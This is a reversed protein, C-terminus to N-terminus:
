KTWDKWFRSFVWTRMVDCERVQKNLDRDGEGIKGSDPSFVWTRTMTLSERMQKNLDRDSGGIKGSDPSFLWTKM